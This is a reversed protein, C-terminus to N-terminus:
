GGFPKNPRHQQQYLDPSLTKSKGKSLYKRLVGGKVNNVDFEIIFADEDIADIIRHVKKSDIRNLVTQIVDADQMEGRSGFGRLGKLITMGIGAEKLLAEQLAEREESVIMLGIYDEFGEFIFDIVKGTVIFTLISYLAVEISILWATIGFLVTNFGLIITGIPLGFRDHLYIGLIESGDLVTGNKIALGIGAGLFIGGFIAILLKEETVAEFNEYHLVVALALVSLISKVMVRRSLTLWGAIFFPISAIPLIYSIEVPLFEGILIAIGTVGGDLFGNPLLFAKLGISALLVAFGIQLYESLLSSIKNKIAM